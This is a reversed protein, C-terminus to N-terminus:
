VVVGDASDFSTRLIEKIRMWGEKVAARAVRRLSPCSGQGCAADARKQAFGCPPALDQKRYGESKESDWCLQKLNWWKRATFWTDSISRNAASKAIRWM